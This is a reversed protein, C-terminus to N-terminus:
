PADQTTLIADLDIRPHGATGLCRILLTHAGQQLSRAFVIRRAKTKRSHLNFDGIVQGDLTVRAMGRSSSLSSVWAVGSGTFVVIATAGKKSTYRTHGGYYSSSSGSKWGGAYTIAPSGESRAKVTFPQGQAFASSNGACDRARARFQREAKGPTVAVSASQSTASALTVKQFAGSNVSQQLTDRCIPSEDWARWRVRLPVKKTGLAAGTVFSVMPPTSVSPPFTDPGRVFTYGFGDTSGVWFAATSGDPTFAADDGGSSSGALLDTTAGTTMNKTHIHHFGGDNSDIWSVINGDGSMGAHLGFQTGSSQDYYSAGNTSVRVTAGTQMDHRYAQVLTQTQGAILNSAYSTLSVYRGDDSIDPWYSGNNAEVGAGSVSVRVTTGAQRDRVFVDPFGNTDGAVLNTAYSQFAVYRGDASIDVHLSQNDGEAGASSVSAETTTGAQRDRVWAQGGSTFTVYRADPSMATSSFVESHIPVESSDVSVMETTHADLDRIFIDSTTPLDEPDNPVLNGSLSEFMVKRGDASLAISYPASSRNSTTNPLWVDAWETTKTQRDYVFVHGCDNGAGPVGPVVDVLGIYAVYRGNASIATHRCRVIGAPTKGSATVTVQSRVITSAALSSDDTMMLAGLISVAVVSMRGM